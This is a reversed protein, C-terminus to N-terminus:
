ICLCNVGLYRNTVSLMYIHERACESCCVVMIIHYYKSKLHRCVHSSALLPHHRPTQVSSFFQKWQRITMSNHLVYIKQQLSSNMVKPPKVPHCPNSTSKLQIRCFHSINLTEQQRRQNFQFIKLIWWGQGKFRLFFILELSSGKTEPKHRYYFYCLTRWCTM